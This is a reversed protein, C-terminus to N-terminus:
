LILLTKQVMASTPPIWAKMTFNKEQRDELLERYPQAPM